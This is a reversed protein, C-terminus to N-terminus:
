YLNKQENKNETIFMQDFQRKTFESNGYQGDVFYKKTNNEYSYFYNYKKNYEFQGYDIRCIARM